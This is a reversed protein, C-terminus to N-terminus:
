ACAHVIHHINIQGGKRRALSRCVMQHFQQRRLKVPEINPNTPM